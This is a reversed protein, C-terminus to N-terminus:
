WLPSGPKVEKMIFLLCVWLVARDQVESELDDQEKLIEFDTLRAAALEKLCLGMVLVM